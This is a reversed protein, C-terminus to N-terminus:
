PSIRLRYYGNTTASFPINNTVTRTSGASVNVRRPTFATGFPVRTALDLNVPESGRVVLRLQTQSPTRSISHQLTAVVIRAIIRRTIATGNTVAVEYTGGQGFTLSNLTYATNTAGPLIADDRMWQVHGGGLPPDTRLEIRDGIRYIQKQSVVTNNSNTLSYRFRILGIDAATAGDVQVLYNSGQRAFFAVFAGRGDTGSNNDCALPLAQALATYTSPNAFYESLPPARSIAVSTDVTSGSTDVTFVGDAQAEFGYYVSHAALAGCPPPEFPAAGNTRNDLWRTEVTGITVPVFVPTVPVAGPAPRPDEPGVGGGGGRAAAQFLDELKDFTVPTGAPGIELFALRSDALRPGNSVRVNYAGVNAPQVNSVTFTPGTANSLAMGFFHWQYTLPAGNASSAAVAFTHTGGEAVTASAPHATIVPVVEPTFLLNWSLVFNGSQGGVGDVAINYVANSQVNLQVESTLFGGRDEDSVLPTLETVNTGNYVGLLTDFSSGLTRFTVIGTGPARWRYWVSHTGFKDVPMPEGPERTALSNTGGVSGAAGFIEVRNTFNDGPQVLPVAVVLEAPDSLRSGSANNIVVTYTGGDSLQVNTFTLCANTAGRIGSGNHRWQFQLPPDGTGMVCFTVTEGPFANTSAPGQAVGPPVFVILNAVRGTVAGFDNTAVAFLAGADAPQVAPIQLAPGIAIPLANGVRFWVVALPGVIGGVNVAFEVAEGARAERDGPQALFVPPGLVTVNVPSMEVAAGGAADVAVARIAASRTLPFPDAYYL